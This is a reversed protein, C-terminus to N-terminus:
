SDVRVPVFIQASDRQILLAVTPGSADVAARFEGLSAVPAGNVMLIVDGREVGAIAAPGEANEVVLRGTTRLREREGGTLPRVALGLKGSDSSAPLDRAAVEPQEELEGVRIRLSRESKNRWVTLAAERGPKMAAILPPLEASREIDRGDVALIVDGAKVGAKDAPGGEEVQSVLAGRPRPLRFSDALAQNVEQITVGIRGREVRGTTVLQTKVNMAVDIPIAFSVGQYGGTRSYIQSNIGVVEGQLNFLPGGSNGPNVAVDTQIFPTYADSLSRATASVIGATVSNEFGFPSGIAIVWEGAKLGQPDGVRVVPLDKADIKLVAVDTRRDIGVVKARYERRDTMRVNVERADEVVHANTLIYGDPSIVFGSGEGRTPPHRGRPGGFGFGRFFDYLPDDPSLEPAGGRVERGDNVTSVNVVAPGYAEVLGAFNPLAAAAAVAAPPAVAPAASGRADAPPAADQAVPARETCAAVLALLVAPFLRRM